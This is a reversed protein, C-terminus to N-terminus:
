MLRVENAQFLFPGTEIGGGMFSEFDAVTAATSM